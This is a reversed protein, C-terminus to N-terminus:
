EGEKFEINGCGRFPNKIQAKSHVDNDVRYSGAASVPWRARMLICYNVEKMAGRENKTM